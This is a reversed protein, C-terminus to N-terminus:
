NKCQIPFYIRVERCSCLLYIFVFILVSTMACEYCKCTSVAVPLSFIFSSSPIFPLHSVPAVISLFLFPTLFSSLTLLHSFALSPVIFLSLPLHLSFFLSTVFFFSFILSGLHAMCLLPPVLWSGITERILEGM